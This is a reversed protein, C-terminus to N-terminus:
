PRLPGQQGGTPGRKPEDRGALAKLLRPRQTNAHIVPPQRSRQHPRTPQEGTARGGAWPTVAERPAEPVRTGDRTCASWCLRLCEVAISRAGASKEPGRSLLLPALIKKQM